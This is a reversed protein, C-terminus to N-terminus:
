FPPEDEEPFPKAPEYGGVEPAAYPQSYDPEYAGGPISGHSGATAGDGAYYPDFGDRTSGAASVSASEAQFGGPVSISGGGALADVAWRPTDRSEIWLPTQSEKHKFDPYRPNGGPEAKRSRNDWWADPNEVCDRWLDDKEGGAPASASASPSAYSLPPATTAYVGEDTPSDYSRPSSTVAPQANDYGGTALNNQAYPDSVGNGYAGPGAYPAIFAFAYANIKIRSRKQGTAKDIWTNEKLRGTVQLQRGKAVHEVLQRAEDNWAEVDLWTTQADDAQQSSMEAEDMFGGDMSAAKKKGRVALSCRAVCAGNGFETIEPTMGVNGIVVVSNVNRADWDVTPPVPSSGSGSYGSASAPAYDNAYAGTSASPRKGTRTSGVFGGVGPPPMPPFGVPQATADFASMSSRAAAVFAKHQPRGPTGAKRAAPRLASAGLAQCLASM